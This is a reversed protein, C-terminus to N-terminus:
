AQSALVREAARQQIPLTVSGVAHMEDHGTAEFYPYAVPVALPPRDRMQRAAVAHALERQQGAVRPGGVHQDQAIGHERAEGADVVLRHERRIRPRAEVDRAERQARQALSRGLERGLHAVDHQHRQMRAHRNGLEAPAELERQQSEARRQIEIRRERPHLAADGLRPVHRFGAVPIQECISQEVPGFPRAAEDDALRIRVRACPRPLADRVGVSHNEDGIGGMRRRKRRDFLRECIGRAAHRRDRALEHEHVRTPAHRRRVGRGPERGTRIVAVSVHGPVSPAIEPPERPEPGPVRHREHEATAAGAAERLDADDARDALRAHRDIRDAARADARDDPCEDGEVPRVLLDQLRALACEDVVPGEVVEGNRHERQQAPPLERARKMVVDAVDVDLIQPLWIEADRAVQRFAAHVDM